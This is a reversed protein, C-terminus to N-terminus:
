NPWVPGSKAWGTGSAPYVINGNHITYLVFIYSLNANPALPDSSLVVLDGNFGNQLSGIKTERNYLWAAQSTYAGMAQLLTINQSSISSCMKTNLIPLWSNQQYSRNTAVWMGFLPSPPTISADSHLSWQIKNQQAWQAPYLNQTAVGGLVQECLPQYYYYFDNALFTVGISQAAATLSQVQALTPTTFHVVVDRLPPKTNAELVGLVNAQAQNGNTHVWLPFNGSPAHAAQVATTLATTGYDALGDYPQPFIAPNTFPQNLNMYKVPATMDGTYGQNSGDSYAKMGAVFMDYGGSTILTRMNAANTVSTSFNAATTGDYELFAMTVPLYTKSLAMSKATDMYLQILGMPAAGEQVTTYGLQSYLSLSSRIQKSFFDLLKAQCTPNKKGCPGGAYNNALVDEAFSIAYIALDEDLQGTAALSTEVSPNNVAAHCGAGNGNVGCINLQKLAASNVYVIHGSESLVLLPATPQLKDLQASVTLQNQNTFNSPCLFGYAGAGSSPCALRSPEYNWGLVWGAANPTASLLSNVTTQSTVPTFCTTSGPTAKKCPPLLMVNVNALSIWNPKGNSDVSQATLLSFAHSHSDIFGPYVAAGPPLATAGNVPQNSLATIQGNTIQISSYITNSGDMSHVANPANFSISGPPRTQALATIAIIASFLLPLACRM